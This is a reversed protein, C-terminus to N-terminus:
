QTIDPNEPTIPLPKDPYGPLALLAELAIHNEWVAQVLSIQELRKSVWTSEMNLFTLAGIDGRRYARRARAVLTKLHPLYTRLNDQQERLIAQLDLLRNVDIQVQALRARYEERLQKRTAREIAINGRNGSFLPLILSISLGTTHANGTDRARNISIGL